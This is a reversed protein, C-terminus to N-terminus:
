QNEFNIRDLYRYYLPTLPGFSRPKDTNRVNFRAFYTANDDRSTKEVVFRSDDENTKDVINLTWLSYDERVKLTPLNHEYLYKIAEYLQNEAKVVPGLTVRVKQNNM